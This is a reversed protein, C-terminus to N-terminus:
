ACSCHICENCFAYRDKVKLLNRVPAEFNMYNMDSLIKWEAKVTLDTYQHVCLLATVTLDRIVNPSKIKTAFRNNQDSHRTTEIILMCYFCVSGHLSNEFIAKCYIKTLAPKNTYFRM